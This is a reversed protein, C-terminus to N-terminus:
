ERHFSRKQDPFNRLLNMFHERFSNDSENKMAMLRAESYEKIIIGKNLVIIHKCLDAIMEFDHSALIITHQRHILSNLRNIAYSLGQADLGNLGEDVLIYKPDGLIAAALSLKKQMGHSYDNIIMNEMDVLGFESLLENIQKQSDPVKRLIAILELYERGTLYPLLVAEEPTYGLLIKLSQRDNVLDKGNYSVSGDFDSVLGALGRLLTSKGAGNRGVIGYIIGANFSFSFDSLAITDEFRITLNKVEIM